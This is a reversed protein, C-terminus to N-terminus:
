EGGSPSDFHEKLMETPPSPFFSIGGRIQLRLDREGKLPLAFGM